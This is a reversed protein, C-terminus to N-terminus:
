RKAVSCNCLRDNDIKRLMPKFAAGPSVHAEGRRKFGKLEAGWRAESASGAQIGTMFARVSLPLLPDSLSWKPFLLISRGENFLLNDHFRKIGGACL